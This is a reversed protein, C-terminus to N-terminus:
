LQVSIMQPVPVLNWTKQSEGQDKAVFFEGSNSSTIALYPPAERDQRLGGLHGLHRAVVRWM